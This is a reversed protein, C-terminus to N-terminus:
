TKKKKGHSMKNRMCYKVHQGFRYKEEKKPMNGVFVDECYHCKWVGM